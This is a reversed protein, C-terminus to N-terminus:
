RKLPMLIPMLLVLAIISFLLGSIAGIAFSFWFSEKVGDILFPILGLVTSIITLLVAIVKHNYARVYIKSRSKAAGSLEKQTNNYENIIYIAANVVLGSLLVLSAFGGTGFTVGSFHFTLFTGIFSIPILSIIVLPKILSEFLISCIFFIIVVILLILMYQTNADKRYNYSSSECKFGIPLLSNYKDITQEVFRSSLEYSGLFNFAINMSYEQNEKKISTRAKRKGIEGLNSYKIPTDGVTVYSNFLGWVDFKDSESSVITIDNNLRTSTNKSITHESIINDLASYGSQLDLNYLAVKEMDYKIYMENLDNAESYWYSESTEIEVDTVRRNSTMDASMEEAYKYLRDYNYGSIVIRHSKYATNLSNSFGKESVGWTSWDVGGILLAKNIVENELIYPFSSVGAEETFYVDIYGSRGNINTVYREVEDYKSLATEIEVIKENVQKASGGEPMQAKIHLVIDGKENQRYYSGAGKSFLRITGGLIKEMPEKLTHQYFSSGITANYLDHYWMKEVTVKGSWRDPEAVKSPLLHIPIGFALIMLTIYIWKRKQTFDIYRNYVKSFKVIKRRTPLSRKAEASQYNYKDILAPVFFLSVILSVSLNIIIVASFDALDNRVSEPMFFIIVLSGITTLLAALIALFVKRNRYYSFHDVMVISTDIVIGFAVAIGALSFIHLQVDFLYYTIVAILLNAVLTVAIISLYRFSRSIVWVFVLLIILSLLTRRVLKNLETKIEKASDHTLEVYYDDILNLKLEDIKSRVKESMSIINSGEDVYVNLYVTNMGNIRYYSDPARDKYSMTAVSGLYIMKDGSRGIQIKSLDSGMKSTELHLTIRTKKGTSINEQEIDGIIVSRGTYGYIGSIIDNRSLGNIRLVEPDYTIELYEPTGGSVSVSTVGDVQEIYPELNKVAYEQIQDQRMNANIRYSLLHKNTSKGSSVDGGTIYPYSVGEPLNDSVQKLISSVEFRTASINVGKKLKVNVEGRGVYSTSSVSEVGRVSSVVGEIKSTVEQEIVRPSAGNWSFYINLNEGQSKSPSHSVSIMPVLAAGVITLIVMILILSFSSIRDLFSKNNKSKSEM